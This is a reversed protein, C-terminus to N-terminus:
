ISDDYVHMTYIYINFIHIYPNKYELIIFIYLYLM